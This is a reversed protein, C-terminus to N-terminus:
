RVQRPGFLRPGALEKAAEEGSTTLVLSDSRAPAPERASGRILGTEPDGRTQNIRLVLGRAELRRVARSYAASDARSKPADSSRLVSVPVRRYRANELFEEARKEHRRIVQLLALLIGKQLRSLKAISM